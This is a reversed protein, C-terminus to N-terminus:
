TCHISWRLTVQDRCHHCALAVLDKVEETTGTTVLTYGSSVCFDSEEWTGVEPVHRSTDRLQLRGEPTLQGTLDGSGSASESM